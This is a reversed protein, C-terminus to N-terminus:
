KRGKITLIHTGKGPYIQTHDVYCDGTTVIFYDNDAIVETEMTDNETDEVTIRIM